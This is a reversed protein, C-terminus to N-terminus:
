FKGVFAKVTMSAFTVPGGTHNSLVWRVLDPGDNAPDVTGSLICGHQDVSFTVRVLDGALCGPVSVTHSRQGGNGIIFGAESASGTLWLDIRYGKGSPDHFIPRGQDFRVSPTV